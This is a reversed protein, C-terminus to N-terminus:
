QAAAQQAAAQQAAAAAEAEAIRRAAAEERALADSTDTPALEIISQAWEAFKLTALDEITTVNFAEKLLDAMRDSIGQLATVHQKPLEHLPLDEYAKKLANDINM